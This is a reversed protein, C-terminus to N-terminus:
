RVRLGSHTRLMAALWGHMVAHCCIDCIVPELIKVTSDYTEFESCYM